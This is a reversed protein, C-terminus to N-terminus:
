IKNFVGAKSIFKDAKEYQPETCLSVIFYIITSLCVGFIVQEASQEKWFAPLKIGFSIILNYFSYIFGVVMSSFAGKSTGRRWVFGALLPVFVGTTIIDSAIWSIKLISRFKLAILLALITVIFTAFQSFKLKSKDDREKLSLDITLTMAGTNILSDMTSMIAASIGVFVVAGLFPPMYDTVIATVVGGKPIKNFLVKGSMGIFVVILYLPIYVFFSMVTMKKADKDDKSASIRQWVNAQIMWSCGFTIVYVFYKKAGSFFSMYNTKGESIAVRAINEFGGSNKFAVVFIVIASVSLLVFQIIDTIVVGQFGGFMSYILVIGTGVLIAMEYNIGLYTGFFSGIGVMQSSASFIMFILILVSLMKSVYKSYRAEMMTSQTLYGVRRIAKSALIMLFNSLLVPVGYYWFAGLGDDFALDATSIASGAGWWSAIFTISLAWFPLSRGAFFYDFVTQNKKERTVAFLLVTFYLILGILSITKLM